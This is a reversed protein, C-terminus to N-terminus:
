DTQRQTAPWTRRGVLAAQSSVPSSQSGGTRFMIKRFAVRHDVFQGRSLIPPIRGRTLSDTKPIVRRHNRCLGNELAIGSPQCLAPADRPPPMPHQWRKVAFRSHSLSAAHQETWWVLVDEGTLREIALGSLGLWIARRRGLPHPGILLIRPRQQVAGGALHEILRRFPTFRNGMQHRNGTGSETRWTDIVLQDFRQPEGRFHLPHMNAEHPAMTKDIPDPNRGRQNLGVRPGPDQNSSHLQATEM